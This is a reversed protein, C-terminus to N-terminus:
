AEGFAILYQANIQEPQPAGALYNYGYTALYATSFSTLPERLKGQLRPIYCKHLLQRQINSGHLRMGQWFLALIRPSRVREGPKLVFHTGKIGTKARLERGTVTLRAMWTGSWGVTVLVGRREPTEVNFFPLHSHTPYNGGLVLEGATFEPDPIVRSFPMLDDQEQRGGILSHVTFPLTQVLRGVLPQSHKIRLDLAQIDELVATDDSGKNEFYLVWDVAPYNVFRKVQWTVQLGTAKDDWVFEQEVAEPGVKRRM